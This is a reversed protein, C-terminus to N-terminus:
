LEEIGKDVHDALAQKFDAIQVAREEVTDVYFLHHVFVTREQKRRFARATAQKTTAPNFNPSYHFVHNASTINLGVGAAAPNLLLAGTAHGTSFSDIISQREDAPTNGDIIEAYPLPFKENLLDRLRTLANRFPAFILAKEQRSFIQELQMLVYENKETSGYDPPLIEQAHACIVRRATTTEFETGAAEAALYANMSEEDLRFPRLVDIKDPLDDAVEAVLRRVTIPSMIKGLVEATQTEDPFEDLFSDLRGLLGPIVFESISWLDRLTNEVPTGTVALSIRRDLRKLARARQSEPNRIYQAEDLVVLDFHVEELFAVDNLATDYTTLLVDTQPIEAPMRKRDAGHHREVTLNPAFQAFERTWNELLSGPAVVLSRTGRNLTCLLAIAQVTKGLGMEDALLAGLDAMELTRLVGVGTQQYPYLVAELDPIQLIASDQSSHLSHLQSRDVEDDLLDVLSPDTMLEILVAGTIRGLSVEAAELASNICRTAHGDLEFWTNDVVVHSSSVSHGHIRSKYSVTTSLEITTPFQGTARLRPNLTRRGIRLDPLDARVEKRHERVVVAPPITGDPATLM